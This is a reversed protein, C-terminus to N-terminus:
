CLRERERRRRVRWLLRRVVGCNEGGGRTGPVDL